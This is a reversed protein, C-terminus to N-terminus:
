NGIFRTNFNHPKWVMVHKARESSFISLYILVGHASLFWKSVQIRMYMHIGAQHLNFYSISAWILKVQNLRIGIFLVSIISWTCTCISSNEPSLISYLYKIIIVSYEWAFELQIWIGFVHIGFTIRTSQTRINLQYKKQISFFQLKNAFFYYMSRKM